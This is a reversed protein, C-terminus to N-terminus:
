EEEDTYRVRIESPDRDQTYLARVEASGPDQCVHAWGCKPSRATSCSGPSRTRLSADRRAARSARAETWTEQRWRELEADSWWHERRYSWRNGRAHLGSLIARQKETIAIGRANVQEELAAEYIRALTDIQAVSVSGDKNVAPESPPTRRLVNWRVRGTGIPRQARPDSSALQGIAHVLRWWLGGRVEGDELEATRDHALLERVATVYGCSQPDLLLRGDVTHPDGEVTKHDDVVVDYAEPDYYVADIIGKLVLIGRRGNVAPIKVEVPLETALLVLREVDRPFLTELYQDVASTGAETHEASSECLMDFLKSGIKGEKVHTATQELWERMGGAVAEHGAMSAVAVREAVDTSVCGFGAPLAAALGRHIITGLAMARDREPLGLGDVYKFGWLAHCKQWTRLESDSVVHLSVQRRGSM